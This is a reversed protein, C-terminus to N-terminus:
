QTTQSTFRTDIAEQLSALERAISNYEEVLSNYSAIDSRLKAVAANYARVNSNFSDIGSNYEETQGSDRLSDLRRRDTNINNLQIQLSTEQAQIQAKLRSLEIEYSKVKAERSTFEAEYANAFAVVARRDSFYQKYYDELVPPLDDIETGFISHMENVIDNPETKKYANITNIIRQDTLNNNFYDTLIKDVRERQKSSLRDYAAHLMEHASTVQEVGDLRNDQVDFIFIGRQNSHYCGLIITQENQRCESRFEVADSEIQPHNVFFVHKAYDTMKDQEALEVVAPPPTYGRLQWWDSLAQAKLFVVVPLSLLALLLVYALIRKLIKM